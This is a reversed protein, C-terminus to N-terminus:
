NILQSTVRWDIFWDNNGTKQNPNENLSILPICIEAKSPRFNNSSQFYNNECYFVNKRTTKSSTFKFVMSNKFWDWLQETSTNTMHDYECCSLLLAKHNQQETSCQGDYMNPAIQMIHRQLLERTCRWPLGPQSWLVFWEKMGQKECSAPTLQLTNGCAFPFMRGGNPGLYSNGHAWPSSLLWLRQVRLVAPFQDYARAYQRRALSWFMTKGGSVLMWGGRM